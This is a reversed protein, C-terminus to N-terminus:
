TPIRSKLTRSMIKRYMWETVFSLILVLALVLLTLPSHEIEYYVLVAFSALCGIISLWIIRPNARTEKYIKLHAFNVAAYILLFASSGLMSIGELNLFNAFIIVLVSTIFLGETSRGWVKRDFVTPLEGEKAIMYSVNAGGYLTANIASSTSFLAAIAIIKFGIMGLFPKAAEALAYDRAKVIETIPLNGVVALSVGVYIAIVIIVSLYLARPLTKKPDEMDEAANTILGFGEYALFVVAATFVVNSVPPWYSPSLLSPKIFFFGALTFLILIGVKIAVIFLESDGVAKSGIFNVATFLLIIGTAFVNLYIPAANPFFTMAYAAFARAYLALAFVYGIWLLINFGGSIVNDGFGKILFEVPGGASPYRSGLKAYSYTSLLAVLGAIIFALYVANGSIQVAVGLISFIGAGIMGGVGISVAEWLNISKRSM